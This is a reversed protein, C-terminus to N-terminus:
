ALYLATPDLGYEGPELSAVVDVPEGPHADNHARLDIVPFRAYLSKAADMLLMVRPHLRYANNQGIVIGVQGTNLEVVSGTPYISMCQLFQEVLEREYLRDHGRYLEQLAAHRSSPSRYARESTMADYSDVIAAIRALLPIERGRLGEPYGSGDWREHHARLMALVQPDDVGAAQAIDVSAQVHQQMMLATEPDLPNPADLLADPFEAKGLDLLLGGLALRELWEQAADAVGENMLGFAGLGAVILTAAQIFKFGAIIELGTLGPVRPQKDRM